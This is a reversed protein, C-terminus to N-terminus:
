GLAVSVRRTCTKELCGKLGVGVQHTSIKFRFVTVYRCQVITAPRQDRESAEETGQIERTCCM